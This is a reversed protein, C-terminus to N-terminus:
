RNFMGGTSGNNGGQNGAGYNRAVQEAPVPQRPPLQSAAQKFYDAQVDLPTPAFMKTFDFMKVEISPDLDSIPGYETFLLSNANSKEGEVKKFSIDADFIGARVAEPCGQTSCEIIEELLGKQRCHPCQVLDDVMKAIESDKLHSTSLDIVADKCHPCLYALEHLSNKTKCTHCGKGIIKSYDKIQGFHGFGVEYHQFHGKKTPKGAACADCRRGACKQWETYPRNTKPNMKINGTKYDVSDVEHFTAHNYLTFANMDRRSMRGGKSGGTEWFIDCGVCPDRKDKYDGFVGASCVTTKKTRGDYHERFSFYPLLLKTTGIIDGRDNTDVKEYPYDGAVFRVTDPDVTDPKFQDQYRMWSGGGGSGGRPRGRSANSAERLNTVKKLVERDKGFAM